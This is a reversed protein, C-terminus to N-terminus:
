SSCRPFVTQFVLLALPGGFYLILFSIAYDKWSLGESPEEPNALRELKKIRYNLRREKEFFEERSIRGSSTRVRLSYHAREELRNIHDLLIQRRATRPFYESDTEGLMKEIEAILGSITPPEGEKPSPVPRVGSVFHNIRSFISNGQMNM